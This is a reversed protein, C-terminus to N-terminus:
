YELCKYKNMIRSFFKSLFKQSKYVEIIDKSFGKAIIPKPINYLKKSVSTELDIIKSGFKKLSDPTYYLSDKSLRSIFKSTIEDYAEDIQEATFKDELKAIIEEKTNKINTRYGQYPIAAWPKRRNGSLKKVCGFGSPNRM